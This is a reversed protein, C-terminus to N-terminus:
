EGDGTYVPWKGGDERIGQEMEAHLAELRDMDVAEAIQPVNTDIDAPRVREPHRVIWNFRSGVRLGKRRLVRAPFSVRPIEYGSAIMSCVAEERENLEVVQCPIVNETKEHPNHKM